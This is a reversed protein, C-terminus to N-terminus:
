WFQDFYLDRPDHLMGQKRRFWQSIMAAVRKRERWMLVAEGLRGLGQLLAIGLFYCAQEKAKLTDLDTDSCPATAVAALYRVSKTIEVNELATVGIQNFRHLETTSATARARRERATAQPFAIDGTSWLGFTRTLRLIIRILLRKARGLLLRGETLM